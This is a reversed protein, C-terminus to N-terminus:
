QKQLQLQKENFSNNMWQLKITMSTTSWENSSNNMTLENDFSNYDNFSYCGNFSNNLWENASNIM